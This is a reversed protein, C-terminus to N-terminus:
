SKTKNKPYIVAQSKVGLTVEKIFSKLKVMGYRFREAYQDSTIVAPVMNEEFPINLDITRRESTYKIDRRLFRFRITRTYTGEGVRTRFLSRWLTPVDEPILILFSDQIFKNFARLHSEFQDTLYADYKKLLETAHNVYEICAQEYENVARRMMEALKENDPMPVLRSFTVDYLFSRFKDHQVDLETLRRGLPLFLKEKQLRANELYSKELEKQFTREIEDVKQQHSLELERIKQRAAYASALFSVIAGIIASGAAILALLITQNM